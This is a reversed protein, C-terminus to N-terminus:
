IYHVFGPHIKCSIGIKSCDAKKVGRGPCATFYSAGGGILVIGFDQRLIKQFCKQLYPIILPNNPFIRNTKGKPQHLWARIGHRTNRQPSIAQCLALGKSTVKFLPIHQIVAM